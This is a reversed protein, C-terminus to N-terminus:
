SAEEQTDWILRPDFSTASFMTLVVVAGFAAAGPGAHISALTSVQVLAVLITVVYIDLMSWRGAFEILRYLRTRTRRYRVSGMQVSGALIALAIMKLLPVLVSAFFVVMALVYSGSTWLFAIGSLITDNQTGFLSSTDMIPLVNAPVYLIMAAILFAWTRVLSAPKRTHLAAGCRPCHAVDGTSPARSVLRCVECALLGIRATIPAPNM